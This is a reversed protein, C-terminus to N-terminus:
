NTGNTPECKGREELWQQIKLPEFRRYKGIKISPLKGRESQAYVWSIPVALLKAVDQPTLYPELVAAVLFLVPMAIM